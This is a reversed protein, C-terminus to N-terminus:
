KGAYTNLFAEAGATFAGTTVVSVKLYKFNNPSVATMCPGAKIEDITFSNKGVDVWTATSADNNSVKVTVTLGTGGDADNVCVDVTMRDANTFEKGPYQDQSDPKKGLNLVNPFDGTYLPNLVGFTLQGDYIYNAM